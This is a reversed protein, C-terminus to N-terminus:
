GAVIMKKAEDIAKQASSLADKASSYEGSKAASRADDILSLALELKKVAQPTGESKDLLSEARRELKDASSILKQAQADAARAILKARTQELLVGARDLVADAGQADGEDLMQRAQSLLGAVREMDGKVLANNKQVLETLRNYLDELKALKEMGGGVSVRYEQTEVKAFNVNEASLAAIAAQFHSYAAVQHARAAGGDGHQIAQLALSTEVVGSRYEGAAKEPLLLGADVVEKVKATAVEQAQLISKKIARLRLDDSAVDERDAAVVFSDTAKQGGYHATVVYQGPGCNGVAIPKSVFSGDPAPRVEVLACQREDRTIQVKVAAPSRGEGAGSSSPVIGAVIVREDKSYIDRNATVLLGNASSSSDDDAYAATAHYPIFLFAATTTTAATALVAVM